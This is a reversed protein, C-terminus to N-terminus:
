SMIIDSGVFSAVFTASSSSGSVLRHFVDLLLWLEGISSATWILLTVDVFVFTVFLEGRNLEM